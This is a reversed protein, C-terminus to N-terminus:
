DLHFVEEMNAWWEDQDRTELPRQMPEMIEWWEQTTPDHAMKQMDVEFDDGIYEFYGFLLNDKLFITYNRINCKQIMELVGPWVDSHYKVYSKRHEPRLEIVQGFRQVKNEKKM